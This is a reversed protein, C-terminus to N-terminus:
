QAPVGLTRRQKLENIRTFHYQFYYVNFFFTMAGSLVLAIPESSTYHQELSSRINFAAMLWLVWGALQFLGNFNKTEPIFVVVIAMAFLGLAIAYYTMAKSEPDIKKVFSAQILAWVWAFIGCTIVGLLLTLGWHLSPPDPYIVAPETSAPAPATPPVPITGIVQSVPVWETMGESRTMDTLLVNGSATYRQLDALTYPGFERGERTIFYKM